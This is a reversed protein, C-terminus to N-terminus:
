SSDPDRLSRVWADLDDLTSRLLTPSDALAEIEAVLRQRARRLRSRATGEPVSLAAALDPGALHEWYFMMLLIQCELPIRRLARVLLRQSAHEALRHTPTPDLAELSDVDFDAQPGRRGHSRLHMLLKNRAIGMLYARFTATLEVGPAARVCALLTEQVLDEAHAPLTARFFKYLADFNREILANGASRDGAQWARLLAVDEEMAGVKGSVGSAGASGSWLANEAVVPTSLACRRAARAAIM